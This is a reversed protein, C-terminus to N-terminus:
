AEQQPVHGRAASEGFLIGDKYATLLVNEFSGKRAQARVTLYRDTHGECLGGDTEQEFLVAQQTGMFKLAYERELEQAIEILRNARERRTKVTVSREMKAAPTGERESYPFVHIRSFKQKRAFECSELFEEETEGPFGTIMDTTIAPDEFIERINQIYKAFKEVTYKRNMRELVADSGSQLSVHFHPCVKELTKLEKLFDPELIHPELSGLRIRMLDPIANLGELLRILSEGSDQGYSSIHIGTLVVEKVGNEALVCAEDLISQKPRSRVRGRVYPIICYSCFNNCGEQIKIYGRTLEGGTSVSLEEFAEDGTIEKVQNVCKGDMAERVISVINARDETGVVAGVGEIALIEESERQALCGCVCIVAEPHQKHLRRIMNRSKKDAMNTVTCTNILYVDAAQQFPVFVFGDRVLLEVMANTDYQNVKCGLTYAAVRM